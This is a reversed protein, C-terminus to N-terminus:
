MFKREFGPPVDLKDMTSRPKERVWDIMGVLEKGGIMDIDMDMDDPEMKLLLREDAENIKKHRFVGWLFYGETVKSDKDLQSSTFVLLEVGDISTRLLSQEANMFEFVSHLNEISRASDTPFFYVAIDELCPSDNQFVDALINLAPLPELQLVSPMGNSLKYANRSVYCPPYAEFVDYFEGSAAAQLIKFQGRWTPSLSPLSKYHLNFNEQISLIDSKGINSRDYEAVAGFIDGSCGIPLSKRASLDECPAEKTPKQIQLDLTKVKRDPIFGVQLKSLHKREKTPGKSLSQSAHKDTMQNRQAGSIPLKGLVMPSPSTRSPIKSVVTKSAVPAKRAINFSSSGRIPKAPFNGSSLKIVEDEPLFKVKGAKVDRQRKPAQPSFNQDVKCPSTTGNKAQCTECCWDDPIDTLCIRMCYGHERTVNCKSCVVIVEAYGIDGCINCPEVQGPQQQM